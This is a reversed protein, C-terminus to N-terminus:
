TQSIFAIRFLPQGHGLVFYVIQNRLQVILVQLQGQRKANTQMMGTQVVFIAANDFLKKEILLDLHENGCASYTKLGFKRIKLNM